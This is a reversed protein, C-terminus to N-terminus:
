HCVGIMHWITGKVSASPRRLKIEDLLRTVLDTPRLFTALTSLHYHDIIRLLLQLGAERVLSNPDGLFSKMCTDSIEKLYSTMWQPHWQLYEVILEYIRKKIGAILKDNERVNKRLFELLSEPSNFIKSSIFALYSFTFQYFIPSVL